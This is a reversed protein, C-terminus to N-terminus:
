SIGLGKLHTRVGSRRLSSYGKGSNYEPPRHKIKGNFKIAQAVRSKRMTHGTDDIKHTHHLDGLGEKGRRCLGVGKPPVGRKIQMYMM